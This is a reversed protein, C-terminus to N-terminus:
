TNRPMQFATLSGTFGSQLDLSLSGDKQLFRGSELPGIWEIGSAGVSVVLDGLSAASAPPNGGAKVTITKAGVATNYARIMTLEPKAKAITHGNPQDATTPNPDTLHSNPVLPSYPVPTRAV